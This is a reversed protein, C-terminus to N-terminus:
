SRSLQSIFEYRGSGLNKTNGPLILTATSNAPISCQYTVEDGSVVYSSEIKGYTTEISGSAQQFGTFDPKLFFHNFGPNHVDRRIGLVYEYLWSIVSGLSYHNFSNMANRGGFGKEITYSDWHEWITTAGQTVPYLWSPFATQTILAHAIEPYGGESLMPNLPGTGFFGTTVTYGAEKTKSALNDYAKQKNREEFMNFNLGIAYGAQTDNVSGDMNLTKGTEADVFTKNWYQKAEDAKVIYYSADLQKGLLEAYVSMLYMVRGYFANWVLHSDTKVPALWDDIPGMYIDGPMGMYELYNTFQKMADYYEAVVDVDGYHQYMEWVILHICSGYTIGGFGSGVPAINPLNGNSLQGDRIAQLYRMYFTRADSQYFATRVFVHADGTWGMRENRQPCDTPISIFNSLQSYKVNQVLRNVLDNDVKVHGTITSISSLQISKVDELKPAEDLGTIEIYRYGHFTFKPMYTEGEPDGRLTYIDTSSADRLNALLMRGHFEGYEEIKPYLMEAYRIRVKTGRKGKFTLTPIGAIEQGLDYIFLGPAPESMSQAIVTEVKRVPANFHGILEPETENVAPWPLFFGPLSDFEGIPVAEVVAPKKMGEKYYGPKSYDEYIHALNADYHEGQFFGSFRYPGEGYYQWEDENTVYNDTTGDEYTLVLMALLNEKDGWYNFNQLVFTQSGNWWGSSLTFGIGNMGEILLETVDYTQYMLHKDYQSSGPAFFQDSIAKGNIMCDYIGRATAYLRAKLLPKKVTFDRRLMPLSHQDPSRTMQVDNEFAEIDVGYETDMNYFENSPHRLFNLRIGDFHAKTGAAVSYGIQCLRPFTTIDNDALPNLQRAALNGYKTFVADVLFGDVYAFAANGVVEIKLEHPSHLNAENIIPITEDGEIHVIPVSALPVKPHDDKHYGVRYIDLTAPSQGINIEYKIYNEGELLSENRERNLLREDNAGFVLGACSGGEMITITGRMAFIGLTNSAIYYEPAGIWQAGNWAEMSPNMLGTEFKTSATAVENDQNTTEVKVYYEMCPELQAGAYVIGTSCDSTLWGSDWMDSSDAKRGVVIRFGTQKMNNADSIFQWSIVPKKEDLGMPEIEHMVKIQSICYSM